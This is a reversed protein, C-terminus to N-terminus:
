KLLTLFLRDKPRKLAKKEHAPNLGAKLSRKADVLKDRAEKLSVLPYIGFTLTQQKGDFRYNFRWSKLGTPASYLYLGDFDKYKKPSVPSKLNKLFTDTLPMNTDGKQFFNTGVFIGDIQHSTL